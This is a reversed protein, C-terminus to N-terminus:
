LLLLVQVHQVSLHLRHVNINNNTQHHGRASAQRPLLAQLQFLEEVESPEVRQREVLRHHLGVVM